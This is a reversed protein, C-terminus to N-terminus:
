HIVANFNLQNTSNAVKELFESSEPGKCMLLDIISVNPVFENGFNQQYTINDSNWFLERKKKPHIKDRFDNETEIDFNRTFEVEIKWKLVKLCNTLLETNFDVLFDHKKAFIREFNDMYYEFFPAKGYNAKLAGLHQRHWAVTYDLRIDKTITKPNNKKIPVILDEKKQASLVSCRNRYTQKQYNEFLEIQIAKSKFILAFYDTCPLYQTEILM